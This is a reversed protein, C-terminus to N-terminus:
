LVTDASYLKCMAIFVQRCQDWCTQLVYGFIVAHIELQSRGRWVTIWANRDPEITQTICLWFKGKIQFFWRKAITHWVIGKVLYGSDKDRMRPPRCSKTISDEATNHPPLLFHVFLDDSCISCDTIAWVGASDRLWSWEPSGSPACPVTRVLSSSLMKCSNSDRSSVSSTLGFCLPM